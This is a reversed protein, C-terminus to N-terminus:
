SPGKTEVKLSPKANVRQRWKAKRRIESCKPCKCGRVPNGDWPKCWNHPTTAYGM